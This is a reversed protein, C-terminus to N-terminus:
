SAEVSISSIMSITIAQIHENALSRYIIEVMSIYQILFFFTNIRKVEKLVGKIRRQYSDIAFIKNEESNEKLM